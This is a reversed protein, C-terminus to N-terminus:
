EDAVLRELDDRLCALAARGGDSLKDREKEVIALWTWIGLSLLRDSAGKSLGTM